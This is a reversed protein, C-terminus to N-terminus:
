LFFLICSSPLSFFMIKSFLYFISLYQLEVRPAPMAPEDALLDRADLDDLQLVAAGAGEVRVDVAVQPQVDLHETRIAFPRVEVGTDRHPQVGDDVGFTFEGGAGVGCPDGGEGSVSVCEVALALDGLEGARYSALVLLQGGAPDSVILELLHLAAPDACHLDDLALVLPPSRAAFLRVIRQFAAHLRNKAEAADAPAAPTPGLLRRLEPVQRAM